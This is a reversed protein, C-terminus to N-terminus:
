KWDGPSSAGLGVVGLWVCLIGVRLVLHQIANQQLMIDNSMLAEHSGCISRLNKQAQLDNLLFFGQVYANRDLM